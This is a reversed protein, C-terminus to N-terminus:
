LGGSPPVYRGPALIGQPDLLAKLGRLLEAGGDDGAPLSDMDCLGLRYPYLGRRYLTERLAAHCLAARADAGPEDRDYFLGTVAQISRGGTLRLSIFPEFGHGFMTEEIHGVVEAAAPGLMPVVPTLWLVGCRDRDPHADAPMHARKRWYAPRLGDQALSIDDGPAPEECHLREVRQGLSSRLARRRLELEELSDAWLTAGGAWRADGWPRLGEAVRGRPLPALGDFEEYPFQRSAALLRYDNLLEVQLGRGNRQLPARLSDVVGALGEADRVPFVVLQRWAPAPDLWLTLRTVVGLNSQNFLGQLSPGPGHARLPAAAAGPLGAFGTRVVRGTALVVEYACSRAAMDEYPGKGIGREIVNGVVSADPGAGSLPPLLRSGREKLFAALRRFTVGPEVTVYALEEHFDVVRDLRRLSLLVCGGRAPVASGYGWNRGTSVPYLPVGFRRAIRLCAAVEERDAPELIAESRQATEFTAQNALRLREGANIVQEPGLAERWAALAARLAALGTTTCRRTTEDM